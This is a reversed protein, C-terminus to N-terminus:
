GDEAEAEMKQEKTLAKVEEAGVKVISGSKKLEVILDQDRIEVVVGALGEHPGKTIM